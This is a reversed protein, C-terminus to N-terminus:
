AGGKPFVRLTGQEPHDPDNQLRLVEDAGVPYALEDFVRWDFWGRRRIRMQEVARVGPVTQIFAELVSRQLPDGFAFADPDFFGKRPAAGSRGLLAELVSQKVDGGYSSPEVCFDIELDIDAYDPDLVHTERGAQRFRDLQAELEAKRPASLTAAGRPDSTVFATLWSGTWRFSAGARQVWPLREAAKAYDEPRVARYTIARFADPALRRVDDLPESDVGGTAPLPNTISQVLAGISAADFVTLSDPGVNGARGNGLRYTAEFVTGPPSPIQGFEDDGFRVTFAGDQAYDRHVVDGTPRRYGVVRNWLGDDLTFHRDGGHSSDVGLLARRWEWHEHQDWSSGNWKPLSGPAPPLPLSVQYLRL